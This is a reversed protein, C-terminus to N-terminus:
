DGTTLVGTRRPILVVVDVGSGESAGQDTTTQAVISTDSGSETGMFRSKTKQSVLRTTLSMGPLSIKLLGEWM